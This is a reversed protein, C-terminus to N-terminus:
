RTQQAEKAKKETDGEEVIQRLEAPMEKVPEQRLTMQGAQLSIVNNQKEWIVDYEPYDLRSHAGRSEKRALACRAVAEAVTLMNQLDRALHWGPNFMRSGEVRVKAARAKLSNLIELAQELDAETRFIGVLKQM